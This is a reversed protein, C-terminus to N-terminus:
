VSDSVVSGYVVVVYVFPGNMLATMAGVVELDWFVVREGSVSM